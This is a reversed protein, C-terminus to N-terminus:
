VIAVCSAPLLAADAERVLVAGARTARAKAAYRPDNLFSLDGAGATDLPALRQIALGARRVPAPAAIARLLDALPIPPDLPKM